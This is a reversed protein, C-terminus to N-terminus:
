DDEHLRRYVLEASEEGIYVVGTMMGSGDSLEPEPRVQFRGVFEWGDIQPTTTVHYCLATRYEYDYDEDIGCDWDPIGSDFDFGPCEPWEEKTQEQGYGRGSQIWGAAYAVASFGNNYAWEEAQTPDSPPYIYDNSM